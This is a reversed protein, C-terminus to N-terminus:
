GQRILDAVRRLADDLKDAQRGGAQAMEPQGGGGGGMVRAADRSINGAHLGKEVLDSTVMTVLLPNGNVIAGLAIVVSPLRTKLFDGM